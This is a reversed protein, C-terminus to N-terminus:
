RGTKKRRRERQKVPNQKEVPPAHTGAPKQPKAISVSIQRNIVRADDLCLVAEKAEAESSMKVYAYELFQGTKADTGMHVYSVKGAVGFLKRLEEETTEPPLNKVYLDKSM